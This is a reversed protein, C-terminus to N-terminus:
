LKNILSDEGFHRFLEENTFVQNGNIKNAFDAEFNKINEFNSRYFVEGKILSPNNTWNNISGAFWHYMDGNWRVPHKFVSPYPNKWYDLDDSNITKIYDDQAYLPDCFAIQTWDSNILKNTHFELRIDAKCEWDDELFLVVDDKNILNKIMNFKDVFDFAGNGNFHITNYKDGFYNTMFKEISLRDDPSSRDDLLWIKELKNVIDPNFKFLMEITTKLYSIRRGCSIILIPKKTEIYFDDKLRMTVNNFDRHVLHYGNKELDNIISLIDDENYLSNAEFFIKKPRVMTNLMNRIITIDNGETDIKLFDIDTVDCRNILEEFSICEIEECKLLSELGKEKLFTDISPHPVDISNCGKVWEPFDNAEIDEASVYYVKTKYNKDSIALNLKTNNSKNPLKDLYVKMPDISLGKKNDPMYEVMTEFDSTGIEIYDYKNSNNKWKVVNDILSLGEIQNSYAKKTTYRKQLFKAFLENLWIDYGDWPVKNIKDIYWDKYKNPILYAHCCDQNCTTENFIDNVDFTHNTPNNGFSIYYAGDYKSFNCAKNIVDVFEEIPTEINADGEFILTYDYEDNISKLANIHALYCGYHRGTLLGYGHGIYAPKDSVLNPRNCFDKPPIGDYPENVHQIYDIGYESLKAIFNVSKIERDDNPNSLLHITQIRPKSDELGLANLINEVNEYQTNSIYTVLNDYSNKYTQLKKIFTPLGYSLSEKVVLPNLEFNSTFYFLDAAKYFKDVDSRENHWICNDPFDKMIPEWYDKFNMAQNGVFHFIIKKDLLKKALNILEGQNKGPTFLGVNLVHKYNPDFGLEKKALEKDYDIKTIPYEWIDCISEDFVKTFRDKSWESVLIYKDAGFIIDSPNTMSGHTTVIIKYTRKSDYIKELINTEIFSQPIEQFHIVDPNIQNIIDLMKRKDEYLTYMKDGLINVVQNRQVVFVGGTHDSYEICYVDNEKGFEQIMKLTYQPLGGTSLHPVIYLIKKM